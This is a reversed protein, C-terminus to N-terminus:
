FKGRKPEPHEIPLIPTSQLPSVMDESVIDITKGVQEKPEPDNVVPCILWSLDDNTTEGKPRPQTYYYSQEFFDCDITTYM